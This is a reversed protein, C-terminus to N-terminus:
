LERDLYIHSGSKLQIACRNANFLKLPSEGKFDPDMWGANELSIM